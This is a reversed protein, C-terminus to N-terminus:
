NAGDDLVKVTEVWVRRMAEEIEAPTQNFGVNRARQCLESVRTRIYEQLKSNKPESSLAAVMAHIKSQTGMDIKLVEPESDPLNKTVYDAVGKSVLPVYSANAEWAELWAQYWAEKARMSINDRDSDSVSEKSRSQAKSTKKWSDNWAEDWAKEWKEPAGEVEPSDDAEYVDAAASAAKWMAEETAKCQDEWLQGGNDSALITRWMTEIVAEMAADRAAQGAHNRAAESAAREASEQSIQRMSPEVTSQLLLQGLSQQISARTGFLAKRLTSILYTAGVFPLSDLGSSPGSDDKRGLGFVSRAGARIRSGLGSQETNLGEITTRVLEEWINTDKSLLAWDVTRRATATIIIWSLFYCNYRTLTYARTEDDKQVGYCVALVTLLDQGNPFHIRLHM